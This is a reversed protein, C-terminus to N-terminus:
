IIFYIFLVFHLHQTKNGNLPPFKFRLGANSTGMILATIRNNPCCVCMRYIVFNTRTARTPWCCCSCKCAVGTVLQLQYRQCLRRTSFVCLPPVGPGGLQIWSEPPGPVLSWRRMNQLNLLCILHVQRRACMSPAGRTFVNHNYCFRINWFLMGRREDKLWATAWPCRQGVGGRV